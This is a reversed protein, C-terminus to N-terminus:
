CSSPYNRGYGKTALKLVKKPILLSTSAASGAETGPDEKAGQFELFEPFRRLLRNDVRGPNEKLIQMGRDTIQILGRKPTSILGAKKLYTRAWGVRNNFIFQGGSPLLERREIDTLKFEAALTEMLAPLPHEIGDSAHRLLPLMVSQYDPISMPFSEVNLKAM